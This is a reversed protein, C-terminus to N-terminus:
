IPTFNSKGGGPNVRPQNEKPRYVTHETDNSHALLFARGSEYDNRVTVAYDLDATTAYYPLVFKEVAPAGWFLADFEKPDVEIDDQDKVKVTISLIEVPPQELPRFANPERRFPGFVGFGPGMGILAAEAAAKDPFPGDIDFKRTGTDPEFRCVWYQEGPGFPGRSAEALRKLLRPSMVPPPPCPNTSDSMILVEDQRHRPSNCGSRHPQREVRLALIALV